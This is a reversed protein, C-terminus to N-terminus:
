APLKAAQDLTASLYAAGMKAVGVPSIDVIPRGFHILPPNFTQGGYRDDHVPILIARPNTWRESKVKADHVKPNFVQMGGRGNPGIMMSFHIEKQPEELQMVIQDAARGSVDALGHEAANRAQFLYQLLPDDKCTRKVGGYWQRSQPSAKSGTELKSLFRGYETLFDAWAEEFTAFSRASTMKVIARNVKTLHATAREVALKKMHGILGEFGVVVVFRLPAEGLGKPAQHVRRVLRVLWLAGINVVSM